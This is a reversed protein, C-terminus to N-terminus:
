DRYKNNNNRRKALAPVSLSSIAALPIRIIQMLFDRRVVNEQSTQKWFHNQTYVITKTVKRQKTVANVHHSINSALFAMSDDIGNILLVFLLFSM